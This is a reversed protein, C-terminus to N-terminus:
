MGCILSITYYKHKDTQNVESLIIIELDMWKGCTAINWKKKKVCIKSNSTRIGQFVGNTNQYSNCQIQLNWSNIQIGWKKKKDPERALVLVMSFLLPCLLCVQRKRIKSSIREAKWWQTHDRLNSHMRITRSKWEQM